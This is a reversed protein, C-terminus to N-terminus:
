QDNLRYEGPGVKRFVGERTLKSTKTYITTSFFSDTLGPVKGENAARFEALNLRGGAQRAWSILMESQTRGREAKSGNQPTFMAAMREAAPKRGRRKPPPQPAALLPPFTSPTHHASVGNAVGHGNFGPLQSLNQIMGQSLLFHVLQTNNATLLDIQQQNREITALIEQMPMSINM